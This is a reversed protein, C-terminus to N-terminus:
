FEFHPLYTGIFRFMRCSLRPLRYFLLATVGMEDPNIKLSIYKTFVPKATPPELLFHKLISQYFSTSHAEPFCLLRTTKHRIHCHM